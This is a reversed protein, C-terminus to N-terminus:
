QRPTLFTYARELSQRADATIIEGHGVVIRDFDWLLLQDISRRMVARDKIFSKFLRSVAIRGYTGFLWFLVGSFLDLNRGLNFLLDAVILTRSPRHLFAFENVKPMGSVLLQDIEASWADPLADTLHEHFPLEPHEEKVGPACYFRAEPYAAFYEPWHLDHFTSSAVLNEVKGLSDLSAQIASDLHVPSHVWLSGSALRVVTMRHNFQVLGIKEPRDLEWIGEALPKFANEM